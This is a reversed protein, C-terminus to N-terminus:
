NACFNGFDGPVQAHSGDHAATSSGRRVKVEKTRWNVRREYDKCVPCHFIIWEGEQHSICHHVEQQAPKFMPNKMYFLNFIIIFRLKVFVNGICACGAPLAPCPGDM